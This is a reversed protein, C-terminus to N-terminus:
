KKRVSRNKQESWEVNTALREGFVSPLTEYAKKTEKTSGIVLRMNERDPHQFRFVGAHNPQQYFVGLWFSFPDLSAAEIRKIRVRFNHKHDNILKDLSSNDM